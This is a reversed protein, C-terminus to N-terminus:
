AKRETRRRLDALERQVAGVRRWVSWVYLLLAVWVFAYAGMVLPAAPIHEQQLPPLDKLPVFENQQAPQAPQPPPVEWVSPRAAPQRDRPQAGPVAGMLGVIVFLLGLSVAIRGLNRCIM